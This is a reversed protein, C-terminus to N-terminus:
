RFIGEKELLNSLYKDWYSLYLKDLSFEKEQIELYKKELFNKNIENWDNVILVPLGEYLPDLESARVIPIAGMLMAEWTRHCDLGNGRPSFVFVSTKLDILYEEFSRGSANVCYSQKHFLHYVMKREKPYTSVAINLYALQNRKINFNQIKRITNINGHQWIKGAVGIPIPHFKKHGKVSPNQGLWAILKDDALYHVFNRPAPLDGDHSILIYKNPIKPHFNNFFESFYDTKVFVVAGEFVKNPDFTHKQDYVFDALTKITDVTLITEKHNQHSFFHDSYLQTFTFVLTFYLIVLTKKM